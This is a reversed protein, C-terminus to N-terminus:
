SSRSEYELYLSNGLLFKLDAKSRFFLNSIETQFYYTFVKIIAASVNHLTRVLSIQSSNCDDNILQMFKSSINLNAQPSSHVYYCARIYANHLFTWNESPKNDKLFVFDARRVTGDFDGGTYIKNLAIRAIHEVMSRINLHLYRERKQLVAVLSNLMDYILGKIHNRHNIDTDLEVLLNLFSINKFIGVMLNAENQTQIYKEVENRFLAAESRVSYPDNSLM